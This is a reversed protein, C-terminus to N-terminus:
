DLRQKEQRLAEERYIRAEFEKRTREEAERAAREPLRKKAHARARRADKREEDHGQASWAM